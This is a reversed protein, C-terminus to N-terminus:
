SRPEFELRFPALTLYRRSSTGVDVRALYFADGQILFRFNRREAPELRVTGQSLCAVKETVAALLGDHDDSFARCVNTDRNRGDVIALAIATVAAETEFERFM